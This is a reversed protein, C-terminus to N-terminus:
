VHIRNNLYIIWDEWYTFANTEKYKRSRFEHELNSAKLLIHINSSLGYEKSEPLVEIWCRPYRKHSNVAKIFNSADSEDGTTNVCVIGTFLNERSYNRHKRQYSKGLHNAGEHTSFRQDRLM